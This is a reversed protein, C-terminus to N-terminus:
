AEPRNNSTKRIKEVKIMAEEIRKILKKAEQDFQSAYDPPRQGEPRPKLGKSSLDKALAALDDVM